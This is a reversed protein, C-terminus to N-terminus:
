IHLKCDQAFTINTNASAHRDENTNEGGFRPIQIKECEFQYKQNRAHVDTHTNTRAHVHYKDENRRTCQYNYYRIDNLVCPLWALACNGLNFM